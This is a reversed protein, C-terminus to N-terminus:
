TADSDVRLTAAHIDDCDGMCGHEGPFETNSRTLPPLSSAPMMTEGLAAGAALTLGGGITPLGCSQPNKTLEPQGLTNAM